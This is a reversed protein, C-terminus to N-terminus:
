VTIVNDICTTKILQKVQRMSAALGLGTHIVTDAHSRKQHAPWQRALIHQLKEVTMHPRALAREIQMRQSVDTMVTIDFRNQSNTEFLLPIEVVAVLYGALQASAFFHATQARVAPHLIAELRLLEAADHFVIQGLAKRDITGDIYATPFAAAVADQIKGARSLLQHVMQDTDAVAAACQEFQALVTSKGTAISGTLGITIM